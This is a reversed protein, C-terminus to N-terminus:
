FPQLFSWSQWKMIMPQALSLSKPYSKISISMPRYFEKRRLLMMFFQDLSQRPGGCCGARWGDCEKSKPRTTVIWPRCFGWLKVLVIIVSISCWCSKMCRRGDVRCSFAATFELIPELLISFLGKVVMQTWTWSGRLICPSTCYSLSLFAM